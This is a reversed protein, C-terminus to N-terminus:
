VEYRSDATARALIEDTAKTRLGTIVLMPRPETSTNASAHPANLNDFIHIDGARWKDIITNGYMVHQGPEYDSLMVFFRTIRAPEEPCRHWLKDIHPAFFQGPWQVHIRFDGAELHWVDLMRQFVPWADVDKALVVNTSDNYEAGGHATRDKQDHDVLNNQNDKFPRLGKETFEKFTMDRGKELITPIAPTWDGVYRGVRAYWEGEQEVQFKDFHYNSMSRTYDWASDYDKAWEHNYGAPLSKHKVRDAFVRIDM